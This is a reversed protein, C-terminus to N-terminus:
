RVHVGARRLVDVTIVVEAEEAGDNLIVLAKKQPQQEESPPVPSFGQFRYIPEQLLMPGVGFWTGFSM